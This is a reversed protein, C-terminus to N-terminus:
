QEGNSNEIKVLESEVKDIANNCKNLLDMGEKYLEFSKELPLSEESLNEIVDDLKTMAEELSFEKEDAM